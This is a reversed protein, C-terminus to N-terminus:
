WKAGGGSIPQSARRTWPARRREIREALASILVVAPDFITSLVLFRFLVSFAGPMRRRRQKAIAWKARKTVTSEPMQRYKPRRMKGDQDGIDGMPKKCLVLAHIEKWQDASFRRIWTMDWKSGMRRDLKRDLKLGQRMSVTDKGGRFRKTRNRQMEVNCSERFSFLLRFYTKQPVTESQSPYQLMHWIPVSRSGQDKM